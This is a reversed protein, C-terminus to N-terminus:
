YARDVGYTAEEQTFGEYILQEILGEKSFSSYDLYEKAKKVAQKKWDAGVNEAAYSAESETFDEYILQEYLGKKSFAAYALYERAKEVARANARALARERRIAAREAASLKRTVVIRDAFKTHGKRTGVIRFENDGRSLTV